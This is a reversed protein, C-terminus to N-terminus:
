KEWWVHVCQCTCSIHVIPFYLHHLLMREGILNVPPSIRTDSANGKMKTVHSACSWIPNLYKKCLSSQSNGMGGCVQVVHGRYVESHRHSHSTEASSSPPFPAHCPPLCSPHNPPGPSIRDQSSLLLSPAHLELCPLVLSPSLIIPKLERLDIAAAAEVPRM